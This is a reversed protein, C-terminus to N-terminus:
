NEIHSRSFHDILLDCIQRGYETNAHTVDYAYCSPKLFGASDIADSPPPLFAVSNRASTEAYLDCLVSWLKLRVRPQTLPISDLPLQRATAYDSFYKEKKLVKRIFGDDEKPPPPACVVIDSGVYKLKKLLIDLENFNKHLIERIVTQPILISNEIDISQDNKTIFDFPDGSQFLFRAMHQNGNWLLAVKKEESVEVLDSWYSERRPWEGTLVRIRASNYHVEVLRNQKDPLALPVGFVSVHSNGGIIIESQM